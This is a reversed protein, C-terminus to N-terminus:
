LLCFNREMTASMRKISKNMNFTKGIDCSEEESNKKLKTIDSSETSSEKYFKINETWHTHTTKKIYCLLQASILVKKMIM